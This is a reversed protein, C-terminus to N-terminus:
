DSGARGIPVYLTSPRSRDHYLTVAVKRADKASEEAVVGGSNYNKEAHLSNIPGIVLRLRSGKGLVRSVFTFGDFRYRLAKGPEVARAERPSERYRARQRDSSLLISGGDPAIAYVSVVFDTDPQDIAISADLRFSGSIETDAEFPASHYVLHKGREALVHRQDVLENQPMDGADLEASSVDLPDYVYRDSGGSAPAQASLEGASYVGDANGGASSLHLPRQSATVADLSDAYRWREAGGVYYAVRKKLFAPRAGDKLTWDYWQRHLAYLDVVSAAGFTVGRIQAQPDVTGAHDWPGIVLYHRQKAADPALALHSRYYTLAGPQNGDYQGTITLVPMDIRAYQQPTPSYADWYADEHPHAVWERFIPSPLGLQEDLTALPAHSEFGRRFHQAWYAHDVFLPYQATKGSVLTLWRMAYPRMTNNRLPFDLGPKPSAVPVITALHPPTEKATAWESYGLYSAGWMGIRGNCYPQKALWEVVDYGDNAEQRFPAFEGGSNGRGRVDIAAFVYGRAAFYTATQHEIQATYPTLMFLCPLPETQAFPRYLMAQLEVGDRLPIKVGGRFDVPATDAPAAVAQAAALALAWGLTKSM